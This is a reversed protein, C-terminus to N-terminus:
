PFRQFQLLRGQQPLWAWRHIGGVWEPEVEEVDWSEDLPDYRYDPEGPPWDLSGVIVAHVDQRRFRFAPPHGTGPVRWEREHLWESQGPDLKVARARVRPPLHRLEDWEDGRVYLVPAGGANFVLEKSFVLGWPAYGREGILYALGAPTSETLCVVDQAAGFPRSANIRELRLISAVRAEATMAAVAPDLSWSRRGPRGVLHVVYDWLDPHELSRLRAASM